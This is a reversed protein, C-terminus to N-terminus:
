ESLTASFRVQGVTMECVGAGLWEAGLGEQTDFSLTLKPTIVGVTYPNTLPYIIQISNATANDDWTASTTNTDACIGAANNHTGAITGVCWATSGLPRAAHTYFSWWYANAGSTGTIYTGNDGRADYLWIEQEVLTQTTADAHESGQATATATGATTSGTYCDTTGNRDQVYGKITFARNIRVRVHTYTTGIPLGTLACWGAVDSGANKSAIDAIKSTTCMTTYNACAADQCLESREMTVKYVDARGVTASYSSLSYFLSFLFISIIIKIM